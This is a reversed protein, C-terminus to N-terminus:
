MNLVYMIMICVSDTLTDTSSHARSSDLLFPDDEICYFQAYERAFTDFCGTEDDWNM